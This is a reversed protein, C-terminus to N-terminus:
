KSKELCNVADFDDKWVGNKPDCRLITFKTSDLPASNNCEFCTIIGQFQVDIASNGCHVCILLAAMSKSRETYTYQYYETWEKKPVKKALVVKWPEGERIKWKKM